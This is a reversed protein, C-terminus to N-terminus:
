ARKLAIVGSVGNNRAPAPTARWFYPRGFLLRMMVRCPRGEIPGMFFM